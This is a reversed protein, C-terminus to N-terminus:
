GAIDWAGWSGSGGEVLARTKGGIEFIVPLQEM